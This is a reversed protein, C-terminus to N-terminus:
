YVVFIGNTKRIFNSRVKIKAWFTTTMKEKRSRLGLNQIRSMLTHRLFNPMPNPKYPLLTRLHRIELIEKIKATKSSVLLPDQIQSVNELANPEL